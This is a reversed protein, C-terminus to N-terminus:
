WGVLVIADEDVPGFRGGRRILRLLRSSGGIGICPRICRRGM